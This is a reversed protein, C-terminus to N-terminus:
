IFYHSTCKYIIGAIKYITEDILPVEYFPDDEIEETRLLLSEGIGGISEFLRLRPQNPVSSGIRKFADHGNFSVAVLGGENNGLQDRTITEGGLVTQGNLALPIASDGRVKFAIKPNFAMRYDEVLAAEGNRNKWDPSNDFIVGIIELLRVEEVPLLLSPSRNIPNANEASLAIVEPNDNQRLFRRAYIKDKYLAIVLSNDEIPVEETRVIVRSHRAISFGLTDSNIVYIVYDDLDNLSFTDTSDAVDSLGSEATAAALNEYLPVTIDLKFASIPMDPKSTIKGVPMRRLWRYYDEHAYEILKQANICHGKVNDVEAFKIQNENGHHSKNMLNMFPSQNQLIPSNLLNVFAIGTFPEQRSTRWKKLGDILDSLTPKAPLSPCIEDFFDQLMNELYNRLQKIYDRAPQHENENETKEFEARKSEIVERFVGLEIHPRCSKIPHIRRRDISGTQCSYVVQRGFTADNTTMILRADCDIICQMSAAIKERNDKDFLEHLDDFILLSLGGRKKILHKWFSILVALLTARIDSSNCIHKSSTKTGGVEANINLSGNAGIDTDAIIPVGIYAPSYFRDKWIIIEDSLEKLLTQVHSEVLQKIQIIQEIASVAKAYFKLRREHKRRIALYKRMEKLKSLAERIPITNKVLQDLSSLYSYLTNEESTDDKPKSGITKKFANKCEEDNNKRWEAFAIARNLRRLSDYLNKCKEVFYESFELKKPENFAAIDKKVAFCLERAKEKLPLLSKKFIESKFLEDDGLAKILLDIPHDPLDMELSDSFTKALSSTLRVKWSKAWEEIIKSLYEKDKTSHEKLHETIEKGTIKDKHKKLEKQCVPCIDVPQDNEQIWRGIRAYLRQRTAIDPQKELEEIEKGETVIQEILSKANTIEENTLKKLNSMMQISPLLILNSTDLIGLAKGTNETLDRRTEPDNPDFTEGLISKGKKLEEAELKNFSNIAVKLESNSTKDGKNNFDCIKINISPTKEIIDKLQKHIENFNSDTAEIEGEKEKKLVGSLKEQSKLAHKVLDEFPRLGTLSSIAKGIDSAEGIQIFPILGAMKTGVELAVPDLGLKDIGTAEILLKGRQTRSISRKVKTAENGNNDEFTLEVWTDLHLKKDKITQLIKTEPIPTIATCTNEYEEQNEDSATIHIEDEIKEPARQSRFVYGTLCWVIANALATKGSGNDGEILTLPKEFTFDFDEPSSHEDCYKHIGAFRHIRARKLHLCKIENGQDAYTASAKQPPQIKM